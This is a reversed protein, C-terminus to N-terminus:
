CFEKNNRPTGLPHGLQIIKEGDGFKKKDLNFTVWYTYEHVIKNVDGFLNRDWTPGLPHM